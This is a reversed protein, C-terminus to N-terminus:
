NQNMVVVVLPEIFHMSVDTGLTQSTHDVQGM